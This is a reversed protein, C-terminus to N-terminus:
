AVRRLGHEKEFSMAEDSYKRGLGAFLGLVEHWFYAAGGLVFGTVTVGWWDSRMAFGLDGFVNMHAFWAVFLGVAIMSFAWFERMAALFRAAIECTVLVALGLMSVVLFATM